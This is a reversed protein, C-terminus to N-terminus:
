FIEEIIDQSSIIIKAGDKILKNTGVSTKSFINGPVAFVEKGEDLAFEATILAGSKEAAEVILVGESLGSIIRNREPFNKRQIPTGVPYETIICGGTKIINIALDRNERPYIEDIGSGLVAITKGLNSDRKLSVGNNKNQIYLQAQLNGLHAYTDIGIALGSIINIRKESLEKSIKLAVEKGYISANRSGVIAIGKKKLIEKNGLVYLKKPPNYINRLQEPYEKSEISIEEIKM